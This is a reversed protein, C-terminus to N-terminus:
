NIFSVAFTYSTDIAALYVEINTTPRINIDVYCKVMDGNGLIYLKSNEYIDKQTVQFLYIALSSDAIKVKADVNDDSLIGKNETVKLIKIGIDNEIFTKLDDLTNMVIDSKIGIM